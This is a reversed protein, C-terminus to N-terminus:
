KVLADGYLAGELAPESLAAACGSWDILIVQRLATENVRCCFEVFAPQRERERLQLCDVSRTLAVVGKKLRQWFGGCM